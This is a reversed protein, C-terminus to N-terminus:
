PLSLRAAETTLPGGPNRYVGCLCRAIYSGCVDERPIRWGARPPIYPSRAPIEWSTALRADDGPPGEVTGSGRTSDTRPPNAPREDGRAGSNGGCGCRNGPLAPLNLANQYHAQWYGVQLALAENRQQLKRIEALLPELEAYATTIM